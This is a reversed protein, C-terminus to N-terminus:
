KVVPILMNDSFTRHTLEELINKDSIKFWLYDKNPVDDFKDHLEDPLV